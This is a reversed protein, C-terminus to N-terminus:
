KEYNIDDNQTLETDWFKYAMVRSMVCMYAVEIHNKYLLTARCQIDVIAMILLVGSILIAGHFTVGHTILKCNVWPLTEFMLFFRSSLERVM